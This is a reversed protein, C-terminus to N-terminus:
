VSVAQMLFNSLHFLNGKVAQRSFKNQKDQKILDWIDILLWGYLYCTNVKKYLNHLTSTLLKWNLSIDVDTM